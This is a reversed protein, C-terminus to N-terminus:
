REALLKRRAAALARQDAPGLKPYELGLSQLAEVMAGAVVTRTFWKHDAPVVYWPAWPTATARIMDEYARMYQKWHGREEVDHASFKWCKDPTEIRDLFRRKQEARSVHLFFKRILVGNRSLHREFSRMDEYRHEWLNKGTLERPLKQPGLLEPHVRIILVEEYYSRNFVTIHGRRPLERACRWLFDHDLEESSPAKFSVVDCGQSNVGAMVRQITGDKGAADMAQFIALVAWCDQAFMVDQLEGLAKTARELMREAKPKDGARLAGTDDPDVDRLRFSAGDDVRYPAALRCADKVLHDLKM